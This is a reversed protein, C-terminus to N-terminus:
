PTKEWLFPDKFLQFVARWAAVSFGVWYAPILLIRWSIERREAQHTGSWCLAGFAIYSLLITSWDIWAILKAAFSAEEAILLRILSVIASALLFPHVLASLVTGVLLLVTIMSARPGLEIFLTLPHRTHVFATQLWGKFWRTRQRLWVRAVHPAPELTPRTIMGTRYGHRWLRLGIDADETVNYPDWAGVARVADTKFHNSTGGLLLPAGIRNIWPMLVRFLGAYELHFLASIISQKPNTTVLPAQLCAISPDGTSFAQYAEVLQLPHPQDEADYITLMEGRVFNLAYTLAKPKTRPEKVPVTVLEFCPELAMNQVATITAPDDAECVLIIQLKSRPWKLARLNEVLVPVIHAEDRMAVVMSYVPLVGLTVPAIKTLPAREYTLTAAARLIVCALFFLAVLAHVAATSLSPALAIAAVLSILSLTLAVGHAFGPGKHSSFPGQETQLGTCVRSVLVEQYQRVLLARMTQPSCIAVRRAFSKKRFLAGLKAIDSIRPAILVVLSGDGLRAFTQNARMNPTKLDLLSNVDEFGCFRISCAKALSRYYADFTIAGTALLETAPDTGRRRAQLIAANLHRISFGQARLFSISPNFGKEMESRHARGLLLPNTGAPTLEVM